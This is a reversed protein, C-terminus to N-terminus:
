PVNGRHPAEGVSTPPATRLFKWNPAETRNSFNAPVAVTRGLCASFLEDAGDLNAADMKSM